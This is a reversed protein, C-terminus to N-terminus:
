FYTWHRECLFVWHGQGYLTIDSGFVGLTAGSCLSHRMVFCQTDSFFALSSLAFKVAVAVLFMTHRVLCSDLIKYWFMKHREPFCRTDKGFSLFVGLTHPAVSLVKHRMGFLCRTDFWFVNLAASSFFFGLEKGLYDLEAGIICKTAHWFVALTVGSFITGWGLFFCSTDSKWFCCIEYRM